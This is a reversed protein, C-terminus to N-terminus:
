VVHYFYYSKISPLENQIYGGQTPQYGHTIHYHLYYTKLKDRSRVHGGSRLTTRFLPSFNRKTCWWKALNQPWLGHPLLSVTAWWLLNSEQWTQHGYASHHHHNIPMLVDLDIVMKPKTAFPMTLRYLLSLKDHSRILGHSSVNMHSWPCSSM